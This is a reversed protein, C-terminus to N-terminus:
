AAYAGAGGDALGHAAVDGHARRAGRRPPYRHRMSRGHHRFAPGEGGGASSRGRQAASIRHARLRPVGAHHPRWRPATGHAVGRHARRRRIEVRQVGDDLSVRGQRRDIGRQRHNREAARAHAARCAPRPGAGRFLEAGNPPASGGGPKGPPFTCASGGANNILIDIATRRCAIPPMGPM